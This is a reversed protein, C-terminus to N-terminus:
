KLLRNPREVHAVVKQRLTREEMLSHMRRQPALLRLRIQKIKLTVPPLNGYLEENTILDKWSVNSAMRLM